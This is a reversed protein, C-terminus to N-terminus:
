AKKALRGLLTFAGIGCLGLGMLLATASSDPIAKGSATSTDTFGFETGSATTVISWSGATAEYPSGSGTITVYGTGTFTWQASQPTTFTPVGVNVFSYTYNNASDTFTWLDAVPATPPNFILTAFTVDQVSNNVAAYSGTGNIPSTNPFFFSTAPFFNSLAIAKGGDTFTGDGAIQISGNIPIPNASALSSVGLAVAVTALIKLFSTKV